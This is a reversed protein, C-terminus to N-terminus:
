AHAPIAESSRGPRAMRAIMLLAMGFALASTVVMTTAAGHARAFPEILLVSLPASSFHVAKVMGAARAQQTPGVKAGLSTMVNPVFWAIGISYVLAGALLVPLSGGLGLTLAGIGAMGFSFVFCAHASMRRRAPGYLLSTTGGLLASITLFVAIGGPLLGAEQRLQFPLYITPIFTVAGVILSLPLYHWPFWSLISPRPEGAVGPRGREPTLEVRDRFPLLSAFLVLGIAYEGFPWRWDINGLAGSLPHIILTSLTALSVHLGMWKARDGPACRTNILVLSMVQIAAAAMGLLLRSALLTPLTSLYLGATGALAYLLTAALLMRRVGIRDVIFGGLPAGVVMALTTGGILQKVLMADNPTHALAKEITPLVATIATLALSAMVGGTLVVLKEGPNLGTPETGAPDAPAGVDHAM